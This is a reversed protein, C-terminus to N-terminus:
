DKDSQKGMYTVILYQSISFVTWIPGQQKDTRHM